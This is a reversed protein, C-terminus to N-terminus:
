VVKALHIGQQHKTPRSLERICNNPGRDRLLAMFHFPGRDRSLESTFHFPGKDRSLEM